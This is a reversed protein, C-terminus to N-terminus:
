RAFTDASLCGLGKPIQGPTVSWALDDDDHLVTLSDDHIEPDCRPVQPYGHRQGEAQSRAGCRQLAQLASGSENSM